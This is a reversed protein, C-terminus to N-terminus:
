IYTKGTITVNRNLTSVDGQETKNEGLVEEEISVTLEEKKEVLEGQSGLAQSGM